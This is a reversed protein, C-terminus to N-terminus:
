NRSRLRSNRPDFRFSPSRSSSNRSSSTSRRSSSQGTGTSSVNIKDSLMNLSEAIPQANDQGLNVIQIQPKTEKAALDRNEVLEQIQQFLYENCSVILESTRTDVTLTLRIGVPQPTDGRQEVNVRIRRDDDRDRRDDGRREVRRANPDEMYDKYLERIMDAVETVDAYQVQITRPVRDKLSQPLENTDLLELFRDAEQIKAEPGSIFLSNTRSDPIIRVSQAGYPTTGGGLGISAYPDSNDQLLQGLQQATEAATAARLYFVTWNTRTPMQRILDRVTGEIEDLARGDSSYMFLEGDRVEITVRPRSSTKTDARTSATEPTTETSAFVTGPLTESQATSPRNVRMGRSYSSMPSRDTRASDKQVPDSRRISERSVEGPVVVRIPNGFQRDEALVDKVANAIWEARGSPVHIKRFRSSSADMGATQNGLGGTEGYAALTKKIEAMQSSTARIVLSRTGLEPTIVPRDDRDENQFLSSLLDAMTYPDSRYLSVIEVGAGAGGGDITEIMAKVQAHERETAYVHVSDHRGDENLVVGPMIANITEAVDDEDAEAVKYVRLIPTSDDLFDEGMAPKVDIATLISEVLQIAEPTAAVLLSNTRPLSSVKMNMSLNQMLPTATNRERDDKRDDRRYRDYYAQRRQMSAVFPNAGGLGFLKQIQREADGASVYTLPFSKFTLEDDKAPAKAASLLAEAIRLSKGFGQLLVSESADLPTAKGFTGLFGQVQEAVESPQFGQVPVIVRLLENNGYQDLQEAPVTPILNPLVPNDTKIVVLFQDRRLTVYGRPLLYGNIADMAEAVTHDQDDVYNFTGEPVDTLDLTLNARDALWQLVREWNADRFSFRLNAPEKVATMAEAVQRSSEAVAPPDQASTQAQTTEMRVCMLGLIIWGYLVLRPMREGLVFSICAFASRRGLSAFFILSRWNSRLLSPPGQDTGNLWFSRELNRDSGGSSASRM